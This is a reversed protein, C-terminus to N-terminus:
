QRSRAARVSKEAGSVVLLFCGAWIAGASGLPAALVGAAIPVAVQGVRNGMLRLALANARWPVPVSQTVLSMTLPQGLGLFFGALALLAFMAWLWGAAMPLVALTLGSVWLAALVLLGRSWVRRLLPLSLRSAVSAAARVSLLVGVMLPSIGAEEGLLPLFASLIDLISIMAISALMHSPVDRVTLIGLISPKEAKASSGESDAGGSGSPVGEEAADRSSQEQGRFAGRFLQLLAIVMLSLAGGIWLTLNIFPLSGSGDGESPVNLILGGLLPGVLQGASFGATFWGFATDMQANSAFRAIVSQGAVTFILQGLGLVASGLAVAWIGNVAAVCAVGLVSLATGGLLLPKLSPARQARAGIQMAMVLPLVAYVGTVLGITLEDAGLALLKYTTAPRVMHVTAQSLVAALVLVWLWNRMPRDTM